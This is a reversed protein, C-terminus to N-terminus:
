RRGGCHHTGARSALPARPVATAAARARARRRRKSKTLPLAGATPWCPARMERRARAALLLSASSLRMSFSSAFMRAFNVPSCDSDMYSRLFYTHFSTYMCMSPHSISKPLASIMVSSAHGENPSFTTPYRATDTSNWLVSLSNAVSAGEMRLSTSDESSQMWDSARADMAFMPPCSSTSVSAGSTCRSMLARVVSGSTRFFAASVISRMSRTFASRTGAESHDGLTVAISSSGSSPTTSEASESATASTVLDPVSPQSSVTGCTTVSRCRSEM